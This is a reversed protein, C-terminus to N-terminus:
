SAEDDPAALSRATDGSVVTDGRADIPPRGLTADAAATAASTSSRVSWAAAGDDAAFGERIGMRM